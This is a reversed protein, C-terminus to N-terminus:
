QAAYGQCHAPVWKGNAYGAPAWPVGPPCAQAVPASIPQTCGATTVIVALGILGGLTMSFLRM